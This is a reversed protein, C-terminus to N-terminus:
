VVDFHGNLHIAPRLWRGRRLGVVNLRPHTRTHEPRGEAAHYETEFGFTALRDGILRACEEYAEGPPNVTPVKILDSTFAVLEDSSADVAAIVRDIPSAPSM